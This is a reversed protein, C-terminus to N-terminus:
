LTLNCRWVEVLMRGVDGQDLWVLYPTSGQLRALKSVLFAAKRTDAKIIHRILKLM